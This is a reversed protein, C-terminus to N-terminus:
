EYADLYGAAELQKRLDEDASDTAVYNKVVERLSGFPPPEGHIPLPVGELPDAALDFRALLDGQWVWKEAGSWYVAMRDGGDAGRSSLAAHPHWFAAQTAAPVVDPIRGDLALAHVLVGPFPEPMAIDGIGTVVVPVRANPEWAFFGHEILGHEGLLEGHDSTVVVRCDDVCWGRTRLLELVAGLSRDARWIGYDYVDALQALFAGREGEAMDGSYFRAFPEEAGAGMFSLPERAPLWPHGAPVGDWPQHAEALNVVIFAPGGMPDLNERLVQEVARLANDNVLVGFQPAVIGASFGRLLGSGEGLVPNASVIIAQYGRAAMQEALTPLTGDLGRIPIDAGGANPATGEVESPVPIDHAGHELMPVGTFYSAHSPLTWTGPAYARCSHAGGEALKELNPTTPRSYGCLSTHDARVNDLVVLVVTGRAQRPGVKGLDYLMTWWSDVVAPGGLAVLVVLLGVLLLRTRTM